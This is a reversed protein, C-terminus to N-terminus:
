KCYRDAKLKERRDLLAEALRGETKAKKLERKDERTYDKTGGYSQYRKVNGLVPGESEGDKKKSKPKYKFRAQCYVRFTECFGVDDADARVRIGGGAVEDIMLYKGHVNEFAIGADTLAPIWEEQGGIAESDCSVVGFKDSSLYKGNASKLTFANTSGIARTGVFVQQMIVPEPSSEDPLPYALFRDFEDVCLCVPTDSPHTIFLPGVLDEITDARVWVQDTSGEITRGENESSRHKRKKKKHEKDGKFVLKNKKPAKDSM